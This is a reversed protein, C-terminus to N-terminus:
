AINGSIRRQSELPTMLLTRLDETMSRVTSDNSQMFDNSQSYMAEGRKAATEAETRRADAMNSQYQASSGAVGGLGQGLSGVGMSANNFHAAQGGAHASGDVLDGLTKTSAGMASPNTELQSKLNEANRGMTIQQKTAGLARGSMGMQGAGAGIQMAGQTVGAALQDDASNRIEEASTKLNQIQATFGAIKQTREWNKQAQALDKLSKLVAALDVSNSPLQDLAHSLNPEDLNATPAPMYRVASELAQTNGQNTQRPSVPVQSVSVSAQTLASQAVSVGETTTVAGASQTSSSNNPGQASKGTQQVNQSTAAIANARAAARGPHAKDLIDAM